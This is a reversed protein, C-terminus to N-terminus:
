EFKETIEKVLDCLGAAQALDPAEAIARIVPETNSPRVLLWSGNWSLRLGDNTEVKAEPFRERVMKYLEPLQETPFPLKTKVISYPKIEEVLRAVSKSERAMLALVQAMGVFSDRVYGVEPDIPGGNGEGGYVAKSSIMLDVVNAEGVASRLCIRGNQSCIDETMQSTACNIVVNGHRKKMVYEVCFPVTYEEGIYRGNADIIALRDADPDQCFGIDCKNKVVEAGVQRLNEAIPEPTHLFEGNLKDGLVVVECGLSELLKRGLRSGSGNNSDLLVRYGKSEVDGVRITKCVARLHEYPSVIENVSESTSATPLLCYATSEGQETLAKYRELVTKGIPGSIVRGTCDFLKVGNYQSPNHSATIQIGGAAHIFKTLFGATPTPQVGFFIPEFGNERILNCFAGSFQFGSPRGDCCVVIKNTARLKLESLYSLFAAIYRMAPIEFTEGVVGRLGSITVIPQMM